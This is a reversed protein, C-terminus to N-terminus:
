FGNSGIVLDEIVVRGIGRLGVVLVDKGIIVISGYIYRKVFDM